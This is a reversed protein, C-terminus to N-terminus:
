EDMHLVYVMDHWRPTVKYTYTGLPKWMLVSTRSWGELPLGLKWGGDLSERSHLPFAIAAEWADGTRRPRISPEPSLVSVQMEQCCWLLGRKRCWGTSRKEWELALGPELVVAAEREEMHWLSTGVSPASCCRTPHATSGARHQCVSGTGWSPFLESHM